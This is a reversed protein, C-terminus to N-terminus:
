HISSSPFLTICSSPYVSLHILLTSPLALPLISQYIFSSPLPYHLLFSLSISSHPPYLTICSSPYVLPHILLPLPLPTAPPLSMSFMKTLSTLPPPLLIPCSLYSPLYHNQLSSYSLSPLHPSPPPPPSHSLYLGATTRSVPLPLAYHIGLNSQENHETTKSGSLRLSPQTNIGLDRKFLSSDNLAQINQEKKM